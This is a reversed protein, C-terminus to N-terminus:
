GKIKTPHGHKDMTFGDETEVIAIWDYSLPVNKANELLAERSNGRVIQAKDAQFIETKIITGFRVLDIESEVDAKTPKAAFRALHFQKM